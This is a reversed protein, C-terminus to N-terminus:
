HNWQTKQPLTSPCSVESGIALIRPVCSICSYTHKRWIVLDINFATYVGHLRDISHYQKSWVSKIRNCLYKSSSVVLGM